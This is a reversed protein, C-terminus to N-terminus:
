GYNGKSITKIKRIESKSVEYGFVNSPSTAAPTRQYVKEVDIFCMIIITIIPM